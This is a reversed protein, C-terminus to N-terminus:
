APQARAPSRLEELKEAIVRRTRDRLGAIDSRKMGETPIPDLVNV